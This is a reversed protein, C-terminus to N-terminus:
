TNGGQNNMSPMSGQFQNKELNSGGVFNNAPQNGWHNQQSTKEM